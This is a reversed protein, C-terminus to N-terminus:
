PFMISYLYLLMMIMGFCVFSFALTAELSVLNSIFKVKDNNTVYWKPFAKSFNSATTSFAVRKDGKIQCYPAM